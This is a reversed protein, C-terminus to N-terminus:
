KLFAVLEELNEDTYLFEEIMKGDKYSLLGYKDNKKVIISNINYGTLYGNSHIGIEDYVPKIVVTNDLDIVGYLGHTKVIIYHNDIFEYDDYDKSVVMNKRYQYLINGDNGELLVYDDSIDKKYSPCDDYGCDYASFLLKQNDEITSVCLNGSCEYFYIYNHNLYQYNIKYDMVMLLIVILLLFLCVIWVVRAVNIKKM